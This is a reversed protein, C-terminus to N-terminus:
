KSANSSRSTSLPQVLLLSVVLVLCCCHLGERFLHQWAMVPQALVTAVAIISGIVNISTWIICQRSAHDDMGQTARVSHLLALCQVSQCPSENSSCISGLWPRQWALGSSSSSNGNKFTKTSTIVM